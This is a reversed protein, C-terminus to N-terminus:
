PPPPRDEYFVTLEAADRLLDIRHLEVRVVPLGTRKALDALLEAKRGPQLLALNDYLLPTQTEHRDRAFREYIATVGVILLNVVLLEALSIKKNAVSNLIGIGIVIFLYTLDRMRIEETRYRLIGFVAFLGLAFGIEMPVKRLLICLSFTIINFIYYTFAFERKRYLPTYVFSIVFGAFVLDIGLRSLLKVFDWVDILKETGFIEEIM